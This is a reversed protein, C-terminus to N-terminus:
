RKSVTDALQFIQRNIDLECQQLKNLEIAMLEHLQHMKRMCQHRDKESASLQLIIDPCPAAGDPVCSSFSNFSNKVGLCLQDKIPLTDPPTCAVEIYSGNGLAIMGPRQYNRVLEFIRIIQDAHEQQCLNLKITVLPSDIKFDGIPFVNSQPLTVSVDSGSRSWQLGYLDTVFGSIASTPDVTVIEMFYVLHGVTVAMSKHTVTLSLTVEVSYCQFANTASGHAIVQDWYETEDQGLLKNIYWGNLLTNNVVGGVDVATIDVASSALLLGSVCWAAPHKSNIFKYVMTKEDCTMTALAEDICSSTWTEVVQYWFLDLTAVQARHIPNCFALLGRTVDTGVTMESLDQHAQSILLSREYDTVKHFMFSALRTNRKYVLICPPIIM